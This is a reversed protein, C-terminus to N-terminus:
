KKSTHQKIHREMPKETIMNIKTRPVSLLVEKSANIDLDYNM